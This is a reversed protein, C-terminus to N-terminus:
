FDLAKNVKDIRKAKEKLKNGSTKNGVFQSLNENRIKNRLELYERNLDNFKELIGTTKEDSLKKFSERYELNLEMKQKRYEKLEKDKESSNKELEHTARNGLEDAINKCKEKLLFDQLTTKDQKGHYMLTHDKFNPNGNLEKAYNYLEKESMHGIVKSFEAAAKGTLFITGENPELNTLDLTKKILGTEECALINMFPKDILSRIMENEMKQSPKQPQDKIITKIFNEKDKPEDSDLKAKMKNIQFFDKVKEKFGKKFFLNKYKDEDEKKNLDEFKRKTAEPEKQVSENSGVSELSVSPYNMTEQNTDIQISKEESKAYSSEQSNSTFNPPRNTSKEDHHFRFTVEQPKELAITILQQPSKPLKNQFLKNELAIKELEKNANLALFLGNCCSRVSCSYTDNSQEKVNSQLIKIQNDMQNNSLAVRLKDPMRNGMSDDYVFVPNKDKDKLLSIAVFHEGDVHLSVQKDFTNVNDKMNKIIENFTEQAPDVINTVGIRMKEQNNNAYLYSTSFTEAGKEGKQRTGIDENSKETFDVGNKKLSSKLLNFVEDSDLWKKQRLVKELLDKVTPDEGLQLLIKTREIMDNMERFSFFLGIYKNV